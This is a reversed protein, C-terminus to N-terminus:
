EDNHTSQTSFLCLMFHLHWKTQIRHVFCAWLAISDILSFLGSGDATLFIAFIRYIPLYSVFASSASGNCYLAIYAIRFPVFVRLCLCMWETLTCQTHTHVANNLLRPIIFTEILQCAIQGYNGGNSINEKREWNRFPKTIGILEIAQRPLHRNQETDKKRHATQQLQQQRTLEVTLARALSYAFTQRRLLSYIILVKQLRIFGRCKSLITTHM